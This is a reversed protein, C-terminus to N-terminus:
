DSSSSFDQRGPTEQYDQCFWSGLNIPTRLEHSVTSLFASKAENADEAIAKAHKAEEYLEANHIAIGVNQAITNLLRKDNQNFRNEQETSQVSLVGIVEGEVPIPVGLYSSANKGTRAIGLKDYSESLDTNILLPEKTKIIQSTLGEGYRLPQMDDGHQYVFDIIDTEKNHLALYAINAKFLDKMQDGVFQILESLELKETLATSVRNVTALEDIRYEVEKTRDKVKQELNRQQNKLAQTRQQVIFYILGILGLLYLLYAWWTTYWAPLVKFTFTLEESISNYANTARVKFVYNGKSLNIYERETNRTKASWQRDLGVLMTQYQVDNEGIYFPAAYEFRITKNNKALKIDIPIDGMGGYLISDNDIEVQRLLVEFNPIKPPDLNGEYRFIGDPGTFWTISKEMTNSEEPYIGWIPTSTLELLADSSVMQIGEATIQGISKTRGNAWWLRGLRDKVPVSSMGPLTDIEGLYQSETRVFSDIQSDFVYFKTSNNDAFEIRGNMKWFNPNSPLGHTDDYTRVESDELRLRGDSINPILMDIEGSQKGDSWIKGDPAEEFGFVSPWLNQTRSEEDWTNRSRNFYLSVLEPTGGGLAVYLRNSDVESRLLVSARFDYNKSERVFNFDKGKVEILGMGGSAALLKGHSKLFQVFQGHTGTMKVFQNSPADFYFLGNNTGAYLMGNHRSVGWVANGLLGFEPGFSTINSNLNVSAIGNFLALWLIGRSDLYVFDVSNDQLGTEVSIRQIPQGHKDIIYVGNNFSNIVFREDGTALGPLYLEGQMEEEIPTEFRTFDEGDYLYFGDFRTGILLRDDDYPLIQYIRESAFKEGNPVLKFTDQDLYCLGVDWIRLYYTDDVIKGVHYGSESYLIEFSEGDWAFIRNTTRYYIKGNYFDTEWVEAFNRDEEPIQDKLSRYEM